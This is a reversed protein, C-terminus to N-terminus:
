NEEWEWWSERTEGRMRIIRRKNRSKDDDVGRNEGRMRVYEEQKEECEWGVERTEGRMRM